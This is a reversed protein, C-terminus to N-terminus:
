NPITLGNPLNVRHANRHVVLRGDRLFKVPISNTKIWTNIETAALNERFLIDAYGGTKVHEVVRNIDSKCKMTNCVISTVLVVRNNSQLSATQHFKKVATQYALDFAIIGKILDSQREALLEAYRRRSEATEAFIGLWELPSIQLSVLGQHQKKLQEVKKLEEVTLGWIAATEIQSDSVSLNTTVTEGLETQAFCHSPGLHAMTVIAIIRIAIKLKSTPDIISNLPFENLPFDRFHQGMIPLLSNRLQSKSLIQM